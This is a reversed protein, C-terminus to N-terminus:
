EIKVMSYSQFMYGTIEHEGTVVSSKIIQYGKLPKPEKRWSDAKVIEKEPIPIILNRSQRWRKGLPADSKTFTKSTEKIFYEGLAGYDGLDDLMSLRARGYKWLENIIKPEIYNILIHHHIARNEYETVAIYKLEMGNDKYIKRLKRLFKDLDDRAKHPNPRDAKRYTLVWHMDNKTFNANILRRIKKIAQRLNVKKQLENTLESNRGRPIGKKHYRSSFYKNIEIVKGCKCIEKIYPM